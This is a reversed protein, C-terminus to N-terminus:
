LEERDLFRIIDHNTLDNSLDCTLLVTRGNKFFTEWKLKVQPKEHSEFVELMRHNAFTM